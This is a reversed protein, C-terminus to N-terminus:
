IVPRGVIADKRFRLAIWVRVSENVRDLTVNAHVLDSVVGRACRQSPALQNIYASPWQGGWVRMETGVGFGGLAM